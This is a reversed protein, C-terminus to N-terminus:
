VRNVVQGDQSRVGDLEFTIEVDTLVPASIRSYVRSVHAEIDESPRVYESAGFNERALRDLLRSNVDYGVGFNFLRARVENAKRAAAAIRAENPEGITPLGDTLFIVYSPRQRDQLQNLAMSLADHINTGGGAYLGEVFALAQKRTTDNFKELEPRFSEVASDYAVIN